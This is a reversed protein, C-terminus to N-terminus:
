WRRHRLPLSAQLDQFLVAKSETTIPLTNSASSGRGVCRAAADAEVVLLPMLRGALRAQRREYYHRCLAVRRLRRGLSDNGPERHGDDQAPRLQGRLAGSRSNYSTNPM